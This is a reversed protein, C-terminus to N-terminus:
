PRRGLRAQITTRRWGPGSRGPAPVALKEMLDAAADADGAAMSYELVEEPLDNRLCWSAARRRLVAILGPEQRELGGFSVEARRKGVHDHRRSISM